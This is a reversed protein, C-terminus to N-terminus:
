IMLDITQLVVAAPGPSESADEVLFPLCTIDLDIEVGLNPFDFKVVFGLFDLPHVNSDLVLVMVFLDCIFDLFIGMFGAMRREFNPQGSLFVVEEEFEVEDVRLQVLDVSVM